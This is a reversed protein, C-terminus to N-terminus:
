RSFAVLPAGCGTGAEVRIAIGLSRTYPSGEPHSRAMAWTSM